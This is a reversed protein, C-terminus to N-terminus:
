QIIDNKRFLYVWPMKAAPRTKMDVSFSISSNDFNEVGTCYGRIKKRRGLYKTWPQLDLLWSGEVTIFM